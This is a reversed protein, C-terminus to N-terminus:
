NLLIDIPVDTVTKLFEQILEHKQDTRYAIGFEMPSINSKLPVRKVGPINLNAVQSSSITYGKNAAVLLMADLTNNPYKSYFKCVRGEKVFGTTIQACFVTDWNKDIAIFREKELDELTVQTKNSLPNQESLFACLEVQFIPRWGVNPYLQGGNNTKNELTLIIDYKGQRISYNLKGHHERTFLFNFNPHKQSLRRICECLFSYEWYGSYGIRFNETKCNSVEHAQELFDKNAKLLDQVLPLLMEGEPTLEIQKQKKSRIFLQVGLEQELNNIQRSLAPQSIFCREATSTFNKLDALVAFYQLKRFDM